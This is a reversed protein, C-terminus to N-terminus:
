AGSLRGAPRASRFRPKRTAAHRSGADAPDTRARHLPLDRVDDRARHRAGRLHDRHRAPRLWPGLLRQAGFLLVYVMGSVVPSVSFPLDILTTLFAKGPFEYKAICWAAAVGFVLNLPVAIVAVLLTLQIALQTQRDEFAAFYAEVGKRFAEVFVLALPLVLVALMFVVAIGILTWRIWRGSPRRGRTITRRSRGAATTSSSTKRMCRRVEKAGLGPDSQDVLLMVFAIILMIAAIVAAGALDFEELKIVILVPAIESINPLNGAIFIVSGYEGVARAFALAFGTLIAPTLRPLIM